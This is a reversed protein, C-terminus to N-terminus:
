NLLALARKMAPRAPLCLRDLLWQFLDGHLSGFFREAATTDNPRRIFYNHVATLAELRTASLAHLSHHRLALHGNRGEVCSSSRQFLEASERAVRVLLVQRDDPITTLTAAADARLRQAEQRLQRRTAAQPAKRAAGNLYAAPLLREKVVLAEASNLALRGLRRVVQQQFFAITATMSPLVRRAKEIHKECQQSLNAEVAVATLTDVCSTFAQSVQAATRLAGTHLDIPHYAEGLGRIAQRARERRQQAQTLVAQAQQAVATARAISGAFTEPRTAGFAIRAWYDAKQQETALASAAEHQAQEAQRVQSALGAATARSLERQVHFLDPSHHAGLGQRVHGILAKAEASTSQVVTVPLGALARRMGTDWAAADRREAYAELLIFNSVPEIAVLCIQPHFTEDQCVTIPQPDMTRALRSREQAAFARIEAERDSALRHRSGVSNAVFPELEALRLVEQVARLGCGSVFQLVFHLAVVLRHLFAVGDPSEFFAILAPSADLTHKRALWHQLTTRPVDQAQAFARQSTGRFRAAEFAVVQEVTEERKWRPNPTHQNSM